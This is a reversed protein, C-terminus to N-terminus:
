HLCLIIFESEDYGDDEDGDEDEEDDEEDDEEEDDDDGEDDGEEDSDSATSSASSSTTPTSTGVESSESGGVDMVSAEGVSQEVGCRDVRNHNEIERAKYIGRSGVM